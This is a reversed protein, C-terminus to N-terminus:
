QSEMSNAICAIVNSPTPFTHSRILLALDEASDSERGHKLMGVTSCTSFSDSIYIIQWVSVEKEEAHWTARLWTGRGVRILSVSTITLTPEIQHWSPM